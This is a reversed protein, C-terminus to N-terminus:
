DYRREDSEQWRRPLAVYAKADGEKSLRCVVSIVDSIGHAVNGGVPDVFVGFRRDIEYVEYDSKFYDTEMESM